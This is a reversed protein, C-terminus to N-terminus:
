ANQMVIQVKMPNGIRKMHVEFGELIREFPFSHTIFPKVIAKGLSVSKIAAHFVNAYRRVGLIDLENIIVDTLRVQVDTSPYGVHVIRGGPSAIQFAQRIATMAGSAEIVVDVGENDTIEMIREVVDEKAPNIVANAGYKEAYDLRYDEVDTVYAELVGHTRVAQLAMQGIPGAGLIAVTDHVTVRGREAAMMGVALPEIMAGEEYSMKEPILLINQEPVAIYEAFAGNYPPTGHFRMERCLNYRGERCYQCKGCTRGPEVVVKQGVELGTVEDGLEALDGSFEHGLIHPKEVVFSGIRGHQFYHVDSGCIGVVRTRVLVEDPGVQPIDIQGIRMELPKHLVAAKMRGEM